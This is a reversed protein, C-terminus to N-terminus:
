YNTLTERAITDRLCVAWTRNGAAPFIVLWYIWKLFLFLLLVFSLPLSFFACVQSKKELSFCLQLNFRYCNDRLSPLPYYGRWSNRHSVWVFLCFLVVRVQSHHYARRTKCSIKRCMHWISSFVYHICSSCNAIDTFTKLELIVVHLETICIWYIFYLINKYLM